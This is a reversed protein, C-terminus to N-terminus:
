YDSITFISENNALLYNQHQQDTQKTFTYEGMVKGENPITDMFCALQQKGDIENQKLFDIALHNPNIIRGMTEGIMECHKLSKLYESIAKENTYNKVKKSIASNYAAQLEARKKKEERIRYRKEANGFLAVRDKAEKSNAPYYGYTERWIKDNERSKKEKNSLFRSNNPLGQLSTILGNLTKDGGRQNRTKNKGKRKNKLTRAVM